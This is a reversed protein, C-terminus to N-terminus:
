DGFLDIEADFGDFGMSGVYFLLEAKRIRIFHHAERDVPYCM